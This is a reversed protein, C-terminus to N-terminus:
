KGSLNELISEIPVDDMIQQLYNLVDDRGATTVSSTLFMPPLVNWTKLLEKKYKAMNKNLESSSLKDVKTFILAFPVGNEGLWMTFTLDIKQPELRADLLIFLCTLNERKSIYEELLKDFRTKESKSVKAFGYGPLDTLYWNENILFHNVTKTKGPRGSVMALGKRGTLMNILSSKGVNSRGTFAFEHLVPEPCTKLSGSSIIFQASQIIM